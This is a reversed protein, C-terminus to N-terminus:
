DIAIDIRNSAEAKDEGVRDSMFMAELQDTSPANAVTSGLNTDVQALTNNMHLSFSDSFVYKPLIGCPNLYTTDALLKMLEDTDTVSSYVSLPQLM